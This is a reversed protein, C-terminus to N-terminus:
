RLDKQPLASSPTIVMMPLNTGQDDIPAGLTDELVPRLSAWAKPYTEAYTHLSATADRASLQRAIADVPRHSGQYLRVHPNAVINRYWQAKEGFGSVVVAGGGAPRDVVELVVYRPQGSTRGVHELMLLRKGFMGGLHWKYLRIPSRVIWRTRLITGAGRSIWSRGSQGTM